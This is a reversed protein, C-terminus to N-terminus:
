AINDELSSLQHYVKELLFVTICVQKREKDCDRTCTVEHQQTCGLIDFGGHFNYTATKYCLHERSEKNETIDSSYKQQM